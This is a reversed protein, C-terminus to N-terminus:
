IIAGISTLKEVFTAVDAAARPEDVEYEACLAQTLSEATQEEALLEWLKASTANMTVMGPFARTAEGVPVLVLSDAVDRLLFDPNRKM